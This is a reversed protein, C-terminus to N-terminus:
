LGSDLLEEARARLTKYAASHLASGTSVRRVGLAKIDALSPGEAMLLLNVPRGLDVVQSIEDPDVLGPAYLVHAGADRYAELREVTDNIDNRGYLFNEARATLVMGLEECVRAAEAVAEAAQEVSDISGSRPDFDEISCGAAGAARLQRVSRDIGGEEEPFLRESDVSIPVDVVSTLDSVHSILEQRTVQQDDRGIARGLGASTTALARFGLEELIRASGRDWPNPMVFMGSEHLTQFRSDMM